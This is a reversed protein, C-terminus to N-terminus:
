FVGFTLSKPACNYNWFAKLYRKPLIIWPITHSFPEIWLIWFLCNNFKWEDVLRDIGKPDRSTHFIDL